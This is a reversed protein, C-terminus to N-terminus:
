NHFIVGRSMVAQSTSLTQVGTSQLLERGVHPLTYKVKLVPGTMLVASDIRMNFELM